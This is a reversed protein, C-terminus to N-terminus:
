SYGPPAPSCERETMEELSMQHVAVSADGSLNALKHPDRRVDYLEEFRGKSYRIYLWNGTRVGCYSPM